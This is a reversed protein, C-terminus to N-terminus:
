PHYTIPILHLDDKRAVASGFTESMDLDENKLGNPLKWDFYYMLLALPYEVNVMGFTIGPCMRRGSGFPVFEFNNGRYDVCSEIFREPYFREPETWNKPDMGIAWANIIVKSKVPIHYGDIECDQGCERPILLPGPPHMRLVEKIIAKLYKLEDICTEDVKGRKKFIVRVENQAKKLVRQDKMMEAM